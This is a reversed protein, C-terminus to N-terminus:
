YRGFGGLFDFSYSYTLWITYNRSKYHLLIPIIKVKILSFTKSGFM